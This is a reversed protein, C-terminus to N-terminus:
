KALEKLANRYKKSADKYFGMSTEFEPDYPSLLIGNLHLNSEIDGISSRGVNPYKYSLKINENTL